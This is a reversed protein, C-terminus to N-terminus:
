SAATVIFCITLQHLADNSARALALWNASVQSLQSYLCTIPWCVVLVIFHVTSSRVVVLVTYICFCGLTGPGVSTPLPVTLAVYSAPSHQLTSPFADLQTHGRYTVQALRAPGPQNRSRVARRPGTLPDAAVVCLALALVALRLAVAALSRM